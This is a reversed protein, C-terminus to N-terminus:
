NSSPPACPPGSDRGLVFKGPSRCVPCAGSEIGRDRQLCCIGQCVNCNTHHDRTTKARCVCCSRNSDTQFIRLWTHYNRLGEFNISITANKWFLLCDIDGMRTTIQEGSARSRLRDSARMLGIIDAKRRFLSARQTNMQHDIGLVTLREDMSDHLCDPILAETMTIGSDDLARQLNQMILPTAM